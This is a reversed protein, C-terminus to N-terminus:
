ASKRWIPSIQRIKIEFRIKCYSSGVAAFEESKYFYIGM